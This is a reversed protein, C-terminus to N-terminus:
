IKLESLANLPETFDVGAIIKQCEEIKSQLFEAVEAIHKKRNEWKYEGCHACICESCEQWEGNMDRYWGKECNLNCKM